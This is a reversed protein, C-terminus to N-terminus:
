FVPMNAYNLKLPKEILHGNFNNVIRIPAEGLSFFISGIPLMNTGKIDIWNSFM